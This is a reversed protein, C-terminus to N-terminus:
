IIIDEHCLDYYRINLDWVSTQLIQNQVERKETFPTLKKELTSPKQEPHQTFISKKKLKIHHTQRGIFGKGIKFYFPM